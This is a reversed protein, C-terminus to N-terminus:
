AGDAGRGGPRGATAPRVPPPCGSRKGACTHELPKCGQSNVAAGEPGLFGKGSPREALRQWLPRAPADLADPGVLVPNGFLPHTAIARAHGDAGDPSCNTSSPSSTRASAPGPATTRSSASCRAAATASRSPSAWSSAATSPASAGPSTASS